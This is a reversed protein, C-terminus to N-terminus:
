YQKKFFHKTVTVIVLTTPVALLAGIIGLTTGGVIIAIMTALPNFGVAKQMVKPVILNNELQQILLYLGLVGIGHIPSVSIGVILAPVLAIPPGVMPLMELIGAILALSMAYPVGLIFLGVYSLLSVIIMLTLQGRLWFSLKKEVDLIISKINERQKKPFLGLFFNRINDFDMLMYATFVLTTVLMLFGTVASVTTSAVNGAVNSLQEALKQDLNKTIPELEKISTLQELYKPFNNILAITDNLMPVLALAILAGTTILAGFYVLLVALAHPTKRKKLFEVAPTLGLTIILSIFLALIIAKVQFALFLGITIGLFVLIAKVDIVIQKNM